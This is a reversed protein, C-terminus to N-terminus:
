KLLNQRSIHCKVAKFGIFLTCLLISKERHHELCHTHSLTLSHCATRSLSTRIRTTHTAICARRWLAWQLARKSTQNLILLKALIACIRAVSRRWMGSVSTHFLKVHKTTYLILITHINKSVKFVKKKKMRTEM